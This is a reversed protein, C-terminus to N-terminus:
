CVFIRDIPNPDYLFTKKLNRIWTPCKDTISSFNMGKTSDFQQPTYLFRFFTVSNINLALKLGLKFLVAIFKVTM